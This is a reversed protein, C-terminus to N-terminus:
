GVHRPRLLKVHVTEAAPYGLCELVQPFGNLAPTSYILRVVRDGALTRFGVEAARIIRPAIGRHEPTVYISDCYIHLTRSYMLHPAILYAAYGVLAGDCRAALLKLSGTDEMKQYCDWDVALPVHDHDTGSERWQAVTHEAMGAARMSALREWEISVTM